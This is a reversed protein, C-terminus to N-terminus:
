QWTSFHPRSLSGGAQLAARAWALASSSSAIRESRSRTEGGLGYEESGPEKAKASLGRGFGLTGAAAATLISGVFGFPAGSRGFGLRGKWFQPLFRVSSGVRM